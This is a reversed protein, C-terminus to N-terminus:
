WPQVVARRRHSRKPLFGPAPEFCASLSDIWRELHRVQRARLSLQRFQAEASDVILGLPGAAACDFDSRDDL